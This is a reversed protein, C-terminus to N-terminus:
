LHFVEQIDLCIGDKSNFWTYGCYCKTDHDLPILMTEGCDQCQIRATKCKRCQGALWWLYSGNPFQVAGEQNMEFCEEECDDCMEWFDSLVLALAQKISLTNLDCQIVKAKRYSPQRFGNAAFIATKTAGVAFGLMYVAEIEKVDLPTSHYKADVVIKEKIGNAEYEILVDIQRKSGTDKDAIYQNKAVKCNAYAEKCFLAVAEQYELWTM